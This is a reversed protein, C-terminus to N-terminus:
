PRPRGVAQLQTLRAQAREASVTVGKREYRDLAERVLRSAELLHGTAELTASLVMRVDGQDRLGDTEDAFALAQRALEEAGVYKGEAALAQAEALRWRRQADADEPNATGRALAALEHAEPFRTDACLVEALVGAVTPLAWRDGIEVLFRVARRLEEEAASPRGALMEIIGGWASGAAASASAGIDELARTALVHQERAEDIRGAMALVLALSDRTGAEEHRSSGAREVMARCIPLAVEAPTPGLVLSEALRGRARSAARRDGAVEAHHILEPLEAASQEMRLRTWSSTTKVYLARALWAHDDVTELRAAIQEAERSAQDLDVDTRIVMDLNLRAVRAKVAFLDDVGLGAIRECGAVAMEASTLNGVAMHAEALEAVVDLRGALDGEWLAATRSLLNVAALADDRQLARHGATGLHRSAVRRLRRAHEDIPGLELLLRGAQEYHHGLIEEVQGLRDGAANALWDAFREHLDARTRKLIGEYATDRILIHRFHFSDSGAMVEADPHIFGRRQLDELASGLGARLADPCLERVAERYFVQGMVSAREIVARLDPSLRDLRTSLLAQITPPIPMSSFDQMAVWGGNERRLLDEEILMGVLEEVFLPNGSAKEIVRTLGLVQLASGGLMNAVLIGCAEGPLPDVPLVASRADAKWLPRHELLEPRAVCVLVLPGRTHEVVHDLLDLLTPEAWQLDDLVLITPGSAALREMLRRFAWFLDEVPYPVESQGTIADLRDRISPAAADGELVSALGADREVQHVIEAAAWFTIGEGYSLCRGRFAAVRSGLTALLEIVLRSKGVGAEGLVLIRHPERTSSSREVHELLLSLERDRGIMRAHLRRARDPQDTRIELLRYALLPEAKGKLVLPETAEARVHDRVLRYTSPAIVVTGPAAAQELRAAVNVADGTVL